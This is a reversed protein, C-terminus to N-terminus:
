YALGRARLNWLQPGACRARSLAPESRSGQDRCCARSAAESIRERQAAAPLAREDRARDSRAAAPPGLQALAGTRHFRQDHALARAQLKPTLDMEIGVGALLLGPNVYSSPAFKGTRLSPLLSDAAKLLV